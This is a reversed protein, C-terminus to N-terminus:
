RIHVGFILLIPECKVTSIGLKMLLIDNKLKRNKEPPPYSYNAFRFLFKLFYRKMLLKPTFDVWGLFVLNREM